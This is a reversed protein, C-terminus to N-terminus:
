TRIIEVLDRIDRRIKVSCDVGECCSIWLKYRESNREWKVEVRGAPLDYYASASDLAKVFAPSIVVTKSDIVKLGALSYTFWRVVDGLFHHNRSVGSHGDPRFQEVMATEGIDILHAYSPYSDKMILHWALEHEGAETLMYFLCHMGIFGCDFNDDKAHVLDVLKALAMDREHDDFVGYYLAIAQSSQCNGDVTMTDFDVLARRITRRM